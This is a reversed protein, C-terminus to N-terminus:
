RGVGLGGLVQVVAVGLRGEAIRVARALRVLSVVGVPKRLLHGAVAGPRVHGTPNVLTLLGPDINEGASDSIARIVILPKGIRETFATVVHTEMDVAAAGTSRYLAAKASLTCVASPAGVIKGLRAGSPIWDTPMSWEAPLQIVVDGVALTPDLGGALGALIILDVGADISAPLFRAAIGISRVPCGIGARSLARSIAREERPM